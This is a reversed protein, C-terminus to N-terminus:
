KAEKRKPKREKVVKFRTQGNEGRTPLKIVIQDILNSKLARESGIYINQKAILRWLELSIGIRKAVKTQIADMLAQLHGKDGGSPEHQMLTSHKEAARTDMHQLIIFCMSACFTNVVGVFKRGEAQMGEIKNLLEYGAYVSGGPSDFEIYFPKNIDSVEHAIELEIGLMTTSQKNIEGHFKFTRTACANLSSLVIVLALAIIFLSTFKLISRLLLLVANALTFLIAVLVLVSEKLISALTFLIAVLVLVSEKLISAMYNRM